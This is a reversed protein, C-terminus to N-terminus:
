LPQFMGSILIPDDKLDLATEFVIFVEPVEHLTPHEYHSPVSIYPECVMSM